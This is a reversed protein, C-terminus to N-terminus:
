RVNLCPPSGEAAEAELSSVLMAGKELDVMVVARKGPLVVALQASGTANTGSELTTLPWTDLKLPKAPKYHAGDTGRWLCLEGTRTGVCIFNGM